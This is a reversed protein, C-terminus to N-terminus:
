IGGELEKKIKTREAESLEIYDYAIQIFDDKEYNTLVYQYLKDDIKVIEEEIFDSLNRDLPEVNNLTLFTLKIYIRSLLSYGKNLEKNEKFAFFSKNNLLIKELTNNSFDNGCNNKLEELETDDYWLFFKKYYLENEEIRFITNQNLESLQGNKRVVIIIYLNSKQAKTLKDSNYIEVSCLESISDVLTDKIDEVFLLIYTESVKNSYTKSNWENFEIEKEEFGNNEFIESLINKM